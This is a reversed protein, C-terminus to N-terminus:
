LKLDPFDKDTLGEQQLMMELAAIDTSVDLTDEKYLNSLLNKLAKNITDLINEIEWKARDVEPNSIPLEEYQRYKDIMKLTTPLYYDMFQQIDDLKDPHKQVYDFIDQAVTELTDLKASIEKGELADNAAHIRLLAREGEKKIKDISATEPNKMREAQEKEYQAQRAREQEEQQQKQQYNTQYQQYTEEGLVVTQTADNVLYVLPLMGKKLGKNIDKTVKDIPYGTYSSLQQITLVHHYELMAYYRRLRKAFSMRRAGFVIAFISILTLIGGLPRNSNYFILNLIFYVIDRAGFIATGVIGLVLPTVGYGKAINKARRMNNPNNPPAQRSNASNTYWPQSPRSKKPKDAYNTIQEAAKTVMIPFDQGAEKVAPGINNLKSFDKDKIASNVSDSITKGLNNWSNNATNNTQGNKQNEQNDM